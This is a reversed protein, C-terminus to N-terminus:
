QPAPTGGAKNEPKLVETKHLDASPALPKGHSDFSQTQTQITTQTQLVPVPATTKTTKTITTTTDPKPTTVTHNKGCGSLALLLVLASAFKVLVGTNIASITEVQKDPRRGKATEVTVNCYEENPDLKTIIGEILVVDGVKLATGNADHM